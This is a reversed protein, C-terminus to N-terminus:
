RASVSRARERAEVPAPEFEDPAPTYPVKVGGAIIAEVGGAAEIRRRQDAKARRDVEAPDVMSRLEQACGALAEACSADDALDRTEDPDGHMDFLQPRYGVYHVYKYREGRLMFIGSPSFLAHYESFVTRPHDDERVLKLLSEGPLDADEPAFEAGVAQVITPFCDVLNVNTTVVRGKPVDPGAMLMPVGAAGEYM